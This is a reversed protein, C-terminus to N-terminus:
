ASILADTSDLVDAPPHPALEPLRNALESHLCANRPRCAYGTDVRPVPRVLAPDAGLAQAIHRAWDARGIRRPGGLHLLGTRGAGLLSATWRAVDDVLVPTNWHDDPVLLPEGRRLTDISSTLFNPRAGTDGSGYVLSVRLVLAAPTALLEQEAALKARGYANAPRPVDSEGHSEAHGTFVNDTSILLVPRGDLAAAINRAGGRHATLAEEHHAECWTIDSPGHVVVVADPAVRGVLAAVDRPSEVDVQHWGARRSEATLPPRRSSVAVQGGLAHLRAAIHGALYGAGFVLVKEPVVPVEQPRHPGPPSAAGLM